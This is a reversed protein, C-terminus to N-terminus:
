RADFALAEIRSGYPRADFHALSARVPLTGLVVIM